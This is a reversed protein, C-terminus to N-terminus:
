GSTSFCQQNLAGILQSPSAVRILRMGAACAAAAGTDSDEVALCDQAHLQGAGNSRAIRNALELAFQYPEPDPKHREVDDGCVLVQLARRIGAQLLLPEVEVTLSSSVVGLTVSNASRETIWQCINVPIELEDVFRSQYMSKKATCVENLEADTPTHGAERLLIEGALRDAVGVMRRAYDEWEIHGGYPRVTQLWCDYHLPESDVLTGDFDLFVARIRSAM